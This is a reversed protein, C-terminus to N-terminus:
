KVENIDILNNVIAYITLGASNRIKLKSAINKRHTMVTHTSICLSEAIEKNSHGLAIAAVIEKERVSLEEESKDSTTILKQLIQEISEINDVISIVADFSSLHDSSLVFSQLAIIHINREKIQKLSHIGLNLPNIIVVDPSDQEIVSDLTSMDVVESINIRLTDIDFLVSILGRRIIM